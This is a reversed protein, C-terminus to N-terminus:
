ASKRSTRVEFAVIEPTVNTSGCKTCKVRHKEKLREYEDLSAIVEFEEHCDQCIFEYSPM